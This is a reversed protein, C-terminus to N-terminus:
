DLTRPWTPDLRNKADMHDFAQLGVRLTQFGGDHIRRFHREKFRAQNFDQWMPDSWLINLGRSMQKVQEFPDTAAFGSATASAEGTAPTKNRTGSIPGGEARAPLASLLLLLFAYRM